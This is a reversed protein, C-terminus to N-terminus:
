AGVLIEKITYNTTTASNATALLRINGGSITVDFTALSADTYVQGYETAVATTGDHVILLESIQRESGRKAVVLLKASGYTTASYSAIITQVTTSTSATTEDLGGGADAFTAVGTGNSTLVQGSTGGSTPLYWSNNIRLGSSNAEIREVNGTVVRWQDSAHFQMYTNTDGTSMIYNDVTITEVDTIASNGFSVDGTFTGGTLPMYDSPQAIDAALATSFVTASGSLNIASGSNNSDSVTRSLTTDPDGSIIVDVYVDFDGITGGYRAEYFTLTSSTLTIEPSRLWYYFGNSSGSTETYLYFSTNDGGTTLGTSSSGTGGSDRLWRTGSTGTTVSSWSVSTYTSQSSTSTQWGTLDGTTEFTYTSGNVNIEDLQLDARFTTGSPATQHSFVLRVTEGVYDSLDVTRQVWSANNGYVNFLSSSLGGTSGITGTGLEWNDGDEIVYSVTDGTSVGADDFTQYGTEAAGLTVTGTGTTSTAVKVRNALTVM